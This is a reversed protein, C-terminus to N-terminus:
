RAARPGAPRRNHLIALPQRIRAPGNTTQNDLRDPGM